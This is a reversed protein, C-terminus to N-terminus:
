WPRHPSSHNPAEQVVFVLDDALKNLVIRDFVAYSICLITRSAYRLLIPQRSGIVQGLQHFVDKHSM